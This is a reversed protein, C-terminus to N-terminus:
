EYIVENLVIEFALSRITSMKQVWEMQNLEKMEENVGEIAAM